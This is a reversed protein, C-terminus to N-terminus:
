ERVSEVYAFKAVFEEKCDQCRYPIYVRNDEDYEPLGEFRDDEETLTEEVNDSNCYPCRIKM